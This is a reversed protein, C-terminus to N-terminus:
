PCIRQTQSTGAIDLQTLLKQRLAMQQQEHDSLIMTKNLDDEQEYSSKSEDKSTLGVEKSLEQGNKWTLTIITGQRVIVEQATDACNVLRCIEKEISKWSEEESQVDGWEKEDPIKRRQEEPPVDRTVLEEPPEDRTVLTVPPEDRTVWEEHPEDRTVLM